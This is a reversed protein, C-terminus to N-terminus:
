KIVTSIVDDDSVASKVLGRFSITQIGSLATRLPILEIWDRVRSSFYCIINYLTEFM